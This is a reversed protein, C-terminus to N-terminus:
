RVGRQLELRMVIADEVPETYYRKRVGVVTFGDSSYLQRAVSNTERVELYLSLAGRGAAVQVSERLLRRGIGVGRLEPLVAIDGLESEDAAFWLVAYGAVEADLEAVLLAASPRRMLGRFTSEEWPASFSRREIFMVGPLDAPRMRRVVVRPLVDPRDV